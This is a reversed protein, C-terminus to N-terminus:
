KPDKFSEKPNKQSSQESVARFSSQFQELTEQSKKLIRQSEKPIWNPFSSQFHESLARFGGQIPWPWRCEIGEHNRPSGENVCNVIREHGFRDRGCVRFICCCVVGGGSLGNWGLQSLDLDFEIVWNNRMSLSLCRFLFRVNHIM